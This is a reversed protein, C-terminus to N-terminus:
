IIGYKINYMGEAEIVENEDRNDQNLNWEDLSM